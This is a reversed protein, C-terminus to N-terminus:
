IEDLLTKANKYEAASVSLMDLAKELSVGHKKVFTEVMSVLKAAVGKEMGKAIGREEVIDSLNCMQKMEKKLEKTPHIGFKEDLRKEKEEPLIDDTLLTNLLEILESGDEDNRGLCIMVVEILDYRAEGTNNGYINERTM